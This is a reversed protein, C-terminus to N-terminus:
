GENDQEKPPLVYVLVDDGKVCVYVRTHQRISSRSKKANNIDRVALNKGRLDYTIDKKDTGTYLTLTNGKYAKVPIPGVVSYGGAVLQSVKPYTSPSAEVNQVGKMGPESEGRTQANVPSLAGASIFLLLVCAIAAVILRWDTPTYLLQKM